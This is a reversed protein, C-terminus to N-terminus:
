KINNLKISIYYIHYKLINIYGASTLYDKFILKFVVLEELCIVPENHIYQVMRSSVVNGNNNISHSLIYFLDKYRRDDEDEIALKTHM